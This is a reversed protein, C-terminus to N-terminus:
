SVQAANCCCPSVSVAVDTAVFLMVRAQLMLTSLASWIGSAHPLTVRLCLIQPGPRCGVRRCCCACTTKWQAGVRNPNNDRLWMGLFQLAEAQNAAAKSRALETLGKLLVPELQDM